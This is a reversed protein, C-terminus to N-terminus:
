VRCPSSFRRERATPPEALPEADHCRRAWSVGPYELGPFTPSRHPARLYHIVPKDITMVWSWTKEDRLVLLGQDECRPRHRRAPGSHNSFVDPPVPRRVSTPCAPTPRVSLNIPDMHSVLLRFPSTALHPSPPTYLVARCQRASKQPPQVAIYLVVSVELHM